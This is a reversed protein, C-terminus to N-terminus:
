FYKAGEILKDATGFFQITPPFSAGERSPGSFHRGAQSGHSRLFSKAPNDGQPEADPLTGMAMVPNFLVLANPRSSIRADESPEDFAELVGTCAAIHGGASGGGAAIRQPDVGLKEANARVWRVASKADRVCDVAQVKHRSGVRYDATMAVM